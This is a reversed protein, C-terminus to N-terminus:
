YAAFAALSTRSGLDRANEALSRAPHRLGRNRRSCISVDAATQEGLSDSRAHIYKYLPRM